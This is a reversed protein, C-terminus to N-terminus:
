KRCVKIFEMPIGYGVRTVISSFHKKFVKHHIPTYLWQFMACNPKLILATNRYIEDVVEDPIFTIPLSSIVVDVSAEGGNIYQMVKEASANVITVRSDVIHKRLEGVFDENIEFTILTSAPHMKAVICQTINGLGAGYEVITQAVNPNVCQTVGEEVWESSKSIAGTTIYDKAYAFATKINKMFLITKATFTVFFLSCLL